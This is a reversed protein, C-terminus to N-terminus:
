KYKYVYVAGTEGGALDDDRGPEGIVAFSDGTDTSILAYSWGFANWDTNQSTPGFVIPGTFTALGLATNLYLYALGSSHGSCRANQAGIMIALTGDINGTGIGNSAWGVSPDGWDTDTDADDLLTSIFSETPPDLRAYTGAPLADYFEARTAATGWGTAAVVFESGTGDIAVAVQRAFGEGNVMGDIPLPSNSLNDFVWLVGSLKNKKSTGAGPAGVILDLGADGGFMVLRWRHESGTAM